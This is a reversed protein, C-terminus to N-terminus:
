SAERALPNDFCDAPDEAEGHLCRFDKEILIQVSADGGDMPEIGSDDSDRLRRAADAPITISLCGNAFVASINGDVGAVPTLQYRLAVPSLETRDQVIRGDALQDVETRSLRVRVRNGHLRIKM